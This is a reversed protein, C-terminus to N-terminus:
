PKPENQTIMTGIGQDTFLELLLAHPLRGDLIHTRKVGGQLAALCARVKPIMGGAIRGDAILAEAEAESLSSLLTKPDHQDTMVGKVDTLLILKNANLAQALSSAFPDGNISYTQGKVDVGIPSIVPIYDHQDLVHLLSPDVAEVEGVFGIDPGARGNKDPPTQFKRATVLRGDKGSIGVAKAGVMNLLNVIERNLKGGLVMEAISLTDADTVRVGDQFKPELGQQKMMASIEPGGGHVIVVNMGVLEMLAIDKITNQRLEPNLQASGGYKVVITKGRFQQIYPLAEILVDARAISELLTTQPQKSDAFNM